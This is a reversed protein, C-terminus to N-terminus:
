REVTRGVLEDLTIGLADAMSIANIVNPCVRDQEWRGISQRSLGAKAELKKQTLKKAKRAKRISQGITLQTM